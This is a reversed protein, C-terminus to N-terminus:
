LNLVAEEAGMERLQKAIEPSMQFGLGRREIAETKKQTSASSLVLLMVDEKSLPEAALGPAVSILLSGMFFILALGARAGSRADSISADRKQSFSSAARVFYNGNMHKSM